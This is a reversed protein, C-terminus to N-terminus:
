PKDLSAETVQVVTPLHVSTILYHQADYVYSEDGLQVHKSGQAVLCISPEYMGTVPESPETRRFLSLGPVPTTHLEGQETWRAISKRLTELVSDMEERDDNPM